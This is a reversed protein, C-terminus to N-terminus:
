LSLQTVWPILSHATIPRSHSHAGQLSAIFLVSDFTNVLRSYFATKAIRIFEFRAMPNKPYLNALIHMTTILGFRSKEGEGDKSKQVELDLGLALQAAVDASFDKALDIMRITANTNAAVFLRSMMTNVHDLVVPILANIQKPQFASGTHACMCPLSDIDFRSFLGETSKEM